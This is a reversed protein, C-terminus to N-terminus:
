TAAQRACQATLVAVHGRHGIVHAAVGALTGTLIGREVLPTGSNDSEIIQEFEITPV